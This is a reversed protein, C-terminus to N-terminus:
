LLCQLMYWLICDSNLDRWVAQQLGYQFAGQSHVALKHPEHLPVVWVVHLEEEGAQSLSNMMVADNVIVVVVM